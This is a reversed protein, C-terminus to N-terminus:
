SVRAASNRRLLQCIADYASKVTQDFNVEDGNNLQITRNSLWSHLKRGKPISLYLERQAELSVVLPRDGARRSIRSLSVSVPCDLYITLDPAHYDMARLFGDFETESGEVAGFHHVLTSLLYRDFVVLDYKDSLERLMLKTGLLFGLASAHINRGRWEYCLRSVTESPSTLCAVRHDSWDASSLARCLTTKGSGDLGELAVVIM